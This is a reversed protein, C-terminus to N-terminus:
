HSFTLLSFLDNEEEQWGIWCGMRPQKTARGARRGSCIFQMEAARLGIRGNTYSDGRNGEM